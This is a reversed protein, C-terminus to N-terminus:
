GMPLFGEGWMERQRAWDPELAIGRVQRETIAERDGVVIDHFLLAEQIDPALNNLSAIQSIRVPTVHGIAALAAHDEVEGSRVLEEFRIALAMLRSIRPVKTEGRTGGRTAGRTAGRPVDKKEGLRIHKRGRQAAAVHVQFVLTLAGDDTEHSNVVENM